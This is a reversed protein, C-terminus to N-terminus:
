FSLKVQSKLYDAQQAIKTLLKKYESPKKQLNNLHKIVFPQEYGLLKSMDETMDKKVGKTWLILDDLGKLSREKGIKKMVEQTNTSMGNLIKSTNAILEKPHFYYGKSFYEKSYRPVDPKYLKELKSSVISPDKIHTFEHYFLQDIDKPDLKKVNDIVIFVKNGLAGGYSDALNSGWKKAYEKRTM